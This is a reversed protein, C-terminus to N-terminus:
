EARLAFATRTRAAWGAPGLAGAIAIVLGALALLVLMWLPYVTVASPPLGSSAANAMVPLVGHHLWVGFPVAVVGGLLGIVSVSCVVMAITQRPTMGVSKFVGLDHVRERLQLVVTNLVGLGAVAILLLTLLAVLSIVAVFDAGDSSTSSAGAIGRLRMSLDNAYSQPNVGPRVGVAYATPASPAIASLTAAPMVMQLSRDPLFVEGVIKVTVTRGGSSLAYSSGVSTGTATLFFTNAVVEDTGSYWRGRVLAYGMWTADGGFATVQLQSPLGAGSIQADTEAVYRLTDPSSRLASVIAQQQGATMAPPGSFFKILKKGHTADPSLPPEATVRVPATDARRIDNNVRDMSVSLGTGFTVAVVGFLVATATVMTRAPRSFPAALGITLPRPVGRLRSLVRHARYGRLVRPARGTAIAQVASMRGARSAPLLGAVATVCLVLLPVTVSVWLPLALAGVHYVTANRALLPTALLNGCIAGALCGALAPVVVQLLYACVVQVPTFGISKLVGIRTTGAVVAGSVVNVVILVSMVLAIIGFAVIFPVWVANNDQEALRVDLYSTSSGLAGPPLVHRVAAIDAGIAAGTGASAFRYLVQASRAEQVVAPLVWADATGTVSNAIGVVTLTHGGPLGVSSGIHLANNLPGSDSWVVQSSTVPWHGQKLVLDDVPGGPAARGVLNVPVSATGSIGPVAVNVDVNEQRFPGAVATAGAVHVAAPGDAAPVSVTLHAGNQHSFAQDFPNRTDVLMGLALVSAATCALVVLGIVVAQLRRGGLGGRAARVVAKAGPRTM